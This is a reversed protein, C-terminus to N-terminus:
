REPLQIGTRQGLSGEGMVRLRRQARLMDGHEPELGSAGMLSVCPRHLPDVAHGIEKVLRGAQGELHMLVGVLHLLEDQLMVM